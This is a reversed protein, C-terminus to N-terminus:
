DSKVDHFWGQGILQDTVGMRASESQYFEDMFAICNGAAM